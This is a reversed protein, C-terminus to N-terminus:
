GPNWRFTFYVYTAVFNYEMEMTSMVEGLPKNQISYLQTIRDRLGEWVSSAHERSQSPAFNSGKRPPAPFHDM